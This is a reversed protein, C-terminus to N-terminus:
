FWYHTFLLTFSQHYIFSSYKGKLKNTLQTSQHQFDDNAATTWEMNLEREHLEIYLDNTKDNLNKVQTKLNPVQAALLDTTRKM